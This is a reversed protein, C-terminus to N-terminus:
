KGVGCCRKFKLGSECKPCIANRGIKEETRIAVRNGRIKKPAPGFNSKLELSDYAEFDLQTNPILVSGIALALNLYNGKTEM